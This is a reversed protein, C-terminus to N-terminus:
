YISYGICVLTEGELIPPTGVKYLLIGEQDTKIDALKHGFIDTIYGINQGVTV